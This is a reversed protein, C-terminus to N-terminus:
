CLKCKKIAENLSFNFFIFYIIIGILLFFMIIWLTKSNKEIIKSNLFWLFTVVTLFSKVTISIMLYNSNLTLFTKLNFCIFTKILFLLLLLLQLKEILNFINFENNNKIIKKEFIKNIYYVFFIWFFHIIYMKDITYNSNISFFKIEYFLFWLDIWSEIYKYLYYKENISFINKKNKIFM